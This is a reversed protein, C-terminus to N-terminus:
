MYVRKDSISFRSKERCVRVLISGNTTLFPLSCALRDKEEKEACSRVVVVDFCGVIEGNVIAVGM